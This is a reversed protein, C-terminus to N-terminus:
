RRPRVVLRWVVYVVLAVVVLILFIEVPGVAVNHVIGCGRSRGADGGSYTPGRCLVVTDPAIGVVGVLPARLRESLRRCEPTRTPYEQSATDGRTSETEQEARRTRQVFFLAITLVVVLGAMVRLEALLRQFEGTSKAQAIQSTLLLIRRVVAFLGVRLFPEAIIIGHERRIIRITDLLEVLHLGVACPRSDCAGDSSDRGRIGSAHEDGRLRLADRHSRDLDVGRLLLHHARRCSSRQAPESKEARWTRLDVWSPKICLLAKEIPTRAGESPTKLGSPVARARVPHWAVV